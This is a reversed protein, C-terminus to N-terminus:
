NRNVGREKLECDNWGTLWRTGRGWQASNAVLLGCSPECVCVRLVCM